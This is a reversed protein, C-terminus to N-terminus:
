IIRFQKLILIGALILITTGMVGVLIWIRAPIIKVIKEVQQIEKSNQEKEIQKLLLQITKDKDLCEVQLKGFQDLYYKLQLDGSKSPIIVEKNGAKLYTMIAELQASDLSSKVNEGPIFVLSDRVTERYSSTHEKSYKITHCGSLCVILIMIILALLVQAIEKSKM